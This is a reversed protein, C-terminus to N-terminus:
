RDAALRAAAVAAQGVSIAGDGPGLERPLLPELGAEELRRAVGSLLRANQFVGGALVVRDLDADRCVRRAMEAATEAVSEHFAAALLDAPEGDRVRRGLASLLPVPDMVWTGEERVIPFPLPDGSLDGARAELEMAAQAEYASEHRVGLVAAAADFLRGMSSAEPANLGAEIQRSAVRIEEEDTGDLARGSSGPEGPELSFYGLASRWPTRVALDGGPLPAYRMRGARRFEALDGVLAEAGWIRGDTGYGTGDFVLAAVAEDVGHEAAVAALHAHHHQVPIVPELGAEEAFRTSLYDPHLDRAVARPQIRYLEKLRELTAEFHELTELDDLDGVHPSPYARDGHVLTLTNKLHPGVALLPRPSTVPLGVPLPARGRARRITVPGPAATRVVSDDCRAVIARDHLLHADVIGELRHLAEANGAALPEDSRNGSTMVLPRDTAGLLLHHLPTYALMVGVTDLGPSVSPALPADPRRRLLVIPREASRLLEEERGDVRALRRAEDVDRVMVALPKADRGKRERLRDVAPESTADAALHFGGVGKVAVVAGNALLEAAAVLPEEYVGRGDDDEPRTWEDGDPGALWLRPGCEPCSNTESHYRRSTPSRYEELCAPCQEFARMSTRERDYPMAEIVTYRPGCDTCTIFPYRYRRDSPDLMEDRCADCVAVDPSVPQRRDPDDTSERVRFGELGASEAPEKRVREVRAIPPAEALLSRRFARLDGPTGEVLIEVGDAGNRVWGALDHRVAMRHVFPRFGVGQVVGEVRLRAAARGAAPAPSGSSLTAGRADRM